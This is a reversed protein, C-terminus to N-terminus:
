SERRSFKYWFVSIFVGLPQSCAALVMLILPDMFSFRHDRKREKDVHGKRGSQRDKFSEEVM